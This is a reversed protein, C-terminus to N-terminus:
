GKRRKIIKKSDAWVQENSVTFRELPLSVVIEWVQPDVVIFKSRMQKTLYMKVCPAVYPSGAFSNLLEWQMKLRTSARYRKENRLELLATFLKVRLVPPLYHLNIGYHAGAVQNNFVFVLPFKDYYPLTAKHKADYVYMYLEGIRPSNRFSANQMMRPQRVTKYNKRIYTRFWNLSERTHRKPNKVSDEYKQAIKKILDNDINSM